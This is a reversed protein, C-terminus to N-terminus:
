FSEPPSLATNMEIILKEMALRLDTKAATYYDIIVRWEHLPLRGTYELLDDNMGVELLRDLERQLFLVDEVDFDFHYETGEPVWHVRHGAAGEEKVVFWIDGEEFYWRHPYAEVFGFDRLIEPTGNEEAHDGCDACMDYTALIEEGARIVGSAHVKVGGEDYISNIETNFRGNDHNVMDWIPILATDFHRQVTMEMMHVEFTNDGDICGGKFYVDMWDVGDSGPVLVKQLLDKGEKSWNVPLQGVKQTQLYAIYPAYRSSEGLNMEEMLRHSLLCVNDEQNEKWNPNNSVEKAENFVHIYCSQPIEM